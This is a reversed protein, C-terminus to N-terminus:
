WSDILDDVRSCPTLEQTEKIGIGPVVLYLHFLGVLERSREDRWESHVAVYRHWKAKSVCASRALSAHLVDESVVDPPSTLSVYVVYDHFGPLRIVQNAVQV